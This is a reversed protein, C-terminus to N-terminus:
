RSLNPSPTRITLLESHNYWSLWYVLRSAAIKKKLFGKIKKNTNFDRELILISTIKLANM